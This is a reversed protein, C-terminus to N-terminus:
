EPNPLGLGLGVVTPGLPKIVFCHVIVLKAPLYKLVQGFEHSVADPEPFIEITM